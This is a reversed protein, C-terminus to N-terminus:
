RIYHIFPFESKKEARKCFRQLTSYQYATVYAIVGQHNGKSIQDLNHNRYKKFLRM